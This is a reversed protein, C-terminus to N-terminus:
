KKLSAFKADLSATSPASAPANYKKTTVTAVPKANNKIEAFMKNIEAYRAEHKSKIEQTRSAYFNAPETSKPATGTPQAAMVEIIQSMKDASEKEMTLEAELNAVRAQLDAVASMLASMADDESTADAPTETEAPAPTAPVALEVVPIEVSAEVKVEEVKVEEKKTIPLELISKIKDILSLETNM